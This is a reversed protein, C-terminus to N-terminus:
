TKTKTPKKKKLNQDQISKTTKFASIIMGQLEAFISFVPFDEFGDLWTLLDGISPDATKALAWILNYLVGIDFNSLDVEEGEKQNLTNGIDYIDKIPDNGTLEKYRILFGGTCKFPVQKGDILITKEM